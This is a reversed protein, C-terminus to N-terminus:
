LNFRFFVFSSYISQRTISLVISQLRWLTANTTTLVNTLKCVRCAPHRAEVALTHTLSLCHHLLRRRRRRRQRRISSYLCLRDHCLAPSHTHRSYSWVAVTSKVRRRTLRDKPLLRPYLSAITASVSSNTFLVGGGGGCWWWWWEGSVLNTNGISHYISVRVCMQRTLCM